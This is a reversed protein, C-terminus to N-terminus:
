RFRHYVVGELDARAYAAANTLHGNFPGIKTVTRGDRFVIQLGHEPEWDCECELSMYVRRDGYHDRSVTVEGGFHIHKWVDDSGTISVVEEDAAIESKVDQYYEFIAPGAAKLVPEDLALFTSIAAHFDAKAPDDDYGDVLIHCTANGLVPVLLAASSYLGDSDETVAGLGPIEM